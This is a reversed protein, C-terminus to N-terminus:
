GAVEQVRKLLVGALDAEAGLLSAVVASSAGQWAEQTPYREQLRQWTKEGLTLRSLTQLRSMSLFHERGLENLVQQLPEIKSLREELPDVLDTVAGDYSVVVRGQLPAPLRGPTQTLLVMPVQSLAFQGAGLMFMVEPDAGSVDAVFVAAQELHTRLNGLTSDGYHRDQVTLVQCGWQEEFIAKLAARLPAMEGNEPLMVFVIPHKSDKRQLAQLRRDWLEATAQNLDLLEPWKAFLRDLRTTLGSDVMTGEKYRDTVVGIVRGTGYHYVSGGSQGKGKIADSLEVRDDDRWRSIYGKYTGVEQNSALHSAPYGITVVGDSVRDQTIKGLPICHSPQHNTKLIALDYAPLSKEPQLQAVVKGDFPTALEIKGAEFDVCHYATLVYGEPSIFFGTGTFSGNIYIKVTANRIYQEIRKVDQEPM